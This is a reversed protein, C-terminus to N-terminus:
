TSPPPCRTKHKISTCHRRLNARDRAKHGCPVCHLPGCGDAVAKIHRDAREHRRKFFKSQTTVDCLDCYFVKSAKVAHYKATATPQYKRSVALRKAMYQPRPSARQKRDWTNRVDKRHEAAVSAMHELQEPTLDLDDVGKIVGETLPNHHSLGEWSFDKRAWPGADPFGYKSTRTYMPWFILHFAAEIAVLATRFVPVQVATPQDCWALLASHVQKYGDDKARKIHSPEVSRGAHQLLRSHVGKLGTGSGIYLKYRNGKRLVLVYIGWLRKPTVASLSLFWEIRPATAAQVVDFLGECFTIGLRPFLAALHDYTPFVARFRANIWDSVNLCLWTYHLILTQIDPTDNAM